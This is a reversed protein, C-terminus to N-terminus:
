SPGAIPFCERTAEQGDHVISNLHAIKTRDYVGIVGYKDAGIYRSKGIRSDEWKGYSWTGRKIDVSFDKTRVKSLPVVNTYCTNSAFILAVLDKKRYKKEM